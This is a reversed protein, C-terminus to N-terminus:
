TKLLIKFIISYLNVTKEEIYDGYLDLKFDLYPNYKNDNMRQQVDIFYNEHFIYQISYNDETIFIILYYAFIILVILLFILTLSGGFNTKNSNNQFIFNKPSNSLLDLRKLGM